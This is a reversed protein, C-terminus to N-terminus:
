REKLRHGGRYGALLPPTNAKGPFLHLPCRRDAQASCRTEPVIRKKCSAPKRRSSRVEGSSAISMGM